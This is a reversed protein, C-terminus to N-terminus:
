CGCGGCNAGGFGGGCCCLIVIIIIVWTWCSNGFFGNNCM